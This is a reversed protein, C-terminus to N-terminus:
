ALTTFVNDRLRQVQDPTSRDPLFKEKVEDCLACMLLSPLPHNDPYHELQLLPNDLIEDVMTLM